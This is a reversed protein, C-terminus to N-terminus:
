IIIIREKAGSILYKGNQFISFTTVEDFHSKITINFNEGAFFLKKQLKLDWL